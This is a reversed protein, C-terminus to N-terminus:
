CIMSNQYMKVYKEGRIKINKLQPNSAVVSKWVSRKVAYASFTELSPYHDLESLPFAFESNILGLRKFHLLKSAMSTSVAKQIKQGAASIIEVMPCAEIVHIMGGNYEWCEHHKFLLKKITQSQWKSPSLSCYDWDILHLEKLELTFIKHFDENELECKELKLVKLSHIQSELFPFLRLVSIPLCPNSLHFPEVFAVEDLQFPFPRLKAAALFTEAELLDSISLKKLPPQDRLFTVLNNEVSLDSADYHFREYSYIFEKLKPTRFCQFRNRESGNWTWHELHPFELASSPPVEVRLDFMRLSKLHKSVASLTEFAKWKHSQFSHYTIPFTIGRLNQVHKEIFNMLQHWKSPDLEQIYLNRYKRESQIMHNWTQRSSNRFKVNVKRMLSPSQSIFDNFSPCVLTLALLNRDHAFIMEIIEAPHELIPYM